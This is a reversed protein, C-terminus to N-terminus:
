KQSSNNGTEAHVKTLPCKWDEDYRRGSYQFVESSEGFDSLMPNVSGSYLIDRKRVIRKMKEYQNQKRMEEFQAHPNFVIAPYRFKRASRESAPHLGIVFFAEEGLSFSYDAAGPDSNVRPDYSFKQADLRAFNQMRQWLMNEFLDETLTEPQRFIIAASHLITGANRYQEIFRYLFALIANDDHPCAMHNAVFCSVQNRAEAARAAVCPYCEDGIFNNFEKIIHSENNTM